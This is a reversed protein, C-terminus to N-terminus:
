LSNLFILFYCICIRNLLRNNDSYRRKDALNPDKAECVMDIPLAATNRVDM